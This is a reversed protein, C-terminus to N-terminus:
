KFVVKRDLAWGAEDTGTAEEEGRSSVRLSVGDVGSAKLVKKTVQARRDGLALNYETTGRPDCHGEVTVNGSRRALCSANREVARRSEATLESSDFTFYLPELSCAGDASTASATPAMQCRRGECSLGAPCDSDTACEPVICSGAACAKGAGCDADITCATIAAEAQCAGANCSRGDPCDADERCQQCLNNVCFEGDRCHSDRDCKPYKPTCGTSLAAALVAAVAALMIKSM